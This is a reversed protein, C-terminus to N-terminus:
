KADLLAVVERWWHSIDQIKSICFPIGLTDWEKCAYPFDVILHIILEVINRYIPCDM